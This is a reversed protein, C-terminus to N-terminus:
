SFERHRSVRASRHPKASPRIWNDNVEGAHPDRALRPRNELVVISGTNDAMRVVDANVVRSQFDGAHDRANSRSSLFDDRRALVSERPLRRQTRAGVLNDEDGLAFGCLRVTAFM